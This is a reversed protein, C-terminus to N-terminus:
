AVLWAAESRMLLKGSISICGRVMNAVKGKGQVQFCADGAHGIIRFNGGFLLIRRNQLRNRQSACNQLLNGGKQSGLVQCEPRQSSKLHVTPM